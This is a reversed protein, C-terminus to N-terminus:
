PTSCQTGIETKSRDLPSAGAAVLNAVVDQRFAALREPTDEGKSSVELIVDGNSLRWIELTLSDDGTKYRVMKSSCGRQRPQLSTPVAADLTAKATCSWSFARRVEGGALVSIDIEDKRESEKRLPCSWAVEVGPSHALPVRYKWTIEPKHGRVRERLSADFGVPADAPKTVDFYRVGFETPKKFQQQLLVSM